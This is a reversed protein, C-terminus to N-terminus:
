FHIRRMFRDVFDPEMKQMPLRSGLVDVVQEGDQNMFYLVIGPMFRKIPILTISSLQDEALVGFARFDNYHYFSKEVQVGDQTLVYHLTRPQRVAFVGLAIAMVVVLIIFAWSSTVYYAVALLALMFVAYGVFWLVSKQHHIYEPAEWSVLQEGPGTPVIQRPELVAPATPQVPTPGAMSYANYTSQANAMQDSRYLSPEGEHGDPPLQNPQPQENM